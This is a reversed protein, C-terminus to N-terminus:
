PRDYEAMEAAKEEERLRYAEACIDLLTPDDKYKGALGSVGVFDLDVMVIQGAAVRSQLQSRVSEIAQAQTPADAHVTPVSPVTASYKGNTQEVCVPITM